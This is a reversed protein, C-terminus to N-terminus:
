SAARGAPGSPPLSASAGSSLSIREGIKAATEMVLAAVGPENIQPARQMAFVICLAGVVSRGDMIPAAIGVVGEDVEGRSIYYGRHRIQRLRLRFSPWDHGIAKVDPTDHHRDYLARQRALPLSAVVVNGISGRFLPLLRGRGFSVAADDYGREHHINVIDEDGYIRCLIVGCATAASLDRMVDLSANLIPDSRRIRYDLTIIRAGLMYRGSLRALFGAASLEKVYRFATPRSIGLRDAIEEAALTVTDESFLDLVDIMRALKTM